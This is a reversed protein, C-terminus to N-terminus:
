GCTCFGGKIESRKDKPISHQLTKKCKRCRNDTQRKIANIINYEIAAKIVDQPDLGWYDMEEKIKPNIEAEFKVKYPTTM